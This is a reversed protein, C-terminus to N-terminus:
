MSLVLGREGCQNEGECQQPLESSRKDSNSDSFTRAVPDCQTRTSLGGGGGIKVCVGMCKKDRAALKTPKKNRTFQRWMAAERLANTLNVNTM